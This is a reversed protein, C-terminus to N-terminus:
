FPFFSTYEWVVSDQNELLFRSASVTGYVGNVKYLWWKNGTNSLNDISKVFVGLGPYDDYEVEAVKRLADFVSAGGPMFLVNEKLVVNENERVDVIAIHVQISRGTHTGMVALRSFGAGLLAGILICLLAAPALNKANV